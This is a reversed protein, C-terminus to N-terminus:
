SADKLSVARLSSLERGAIDNRRILRRIERKLRVVTATMAVIGLIAGIVLAGVVILSLETNLSGTFYNLVIEQDNRAHFALGGLAMLIAFAM